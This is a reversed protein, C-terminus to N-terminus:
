KSNRKTSILYKKFWNVSLTIVQNIQEEMKHGAGKIIELKSEKSLYQMAEKSSEVHDLSDKDGQIILVPCKIKSLIERQNVAEREILYQKPIKHDRNDKRYVGYGKEELDKTLGKDEFFTAKRSRTTPALLVMAKIKKNYILVANLGGLSEGVLGFNNYGLKKMYNIAAKLDKTQGSIIIERDESEGCGGFDFRLTAFSNKSLANALKILRTRDKNSTFGHSIIIANKTKEKPLHLVGVLKLGESNQFTVKKM